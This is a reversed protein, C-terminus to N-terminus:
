TQWQTVGPKVTVSGSVIPFVISRDTNALLADWVPLAPRPPTATSTVDLAATQVVTMSIRITGATPNVITVTPSALATVADYSARIQSQGTFGTLIYPTGDSQMLTIDISWTSNKYVVPNYVMSM